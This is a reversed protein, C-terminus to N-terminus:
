KDNTSDVFLSFSKNKYTHITNAFRKLDANNFIINNMSAKVVFDVDIVGYASLKACSM